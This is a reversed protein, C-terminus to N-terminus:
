EEVAVLNVGDAQALEAKTPRKVTDGPHLKYVQGKRNVFRFPAKATLYRKTKKTKKTEAM